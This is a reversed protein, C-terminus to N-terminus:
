RGFRGDVSAGLRVWWSTNQFKRLRPISDRLIVLVKNNQLVYDVQIMDWLEVKWPGQSVRIDYRYEKIDENVYIHDFAELKCM